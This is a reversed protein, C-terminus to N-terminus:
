PKKEENELKKLIMKFAENKYERVIKWALEGDRQRFSELLSKHYKISKEGWDPILVYISRFIESKEMLSSILNSLTENEAARYAIRTFERMFRYYGSYDIAKHAKNMEVIIGELNRIVDENINEASLRAALSELEVRITFIETLQKLNFNCVRAGVHPINEVLGESELKRIAERIPIVSIGFQNSVERIIIKEGQRLAGSVIKERLWEYAAETKTYLKLTTNDSM